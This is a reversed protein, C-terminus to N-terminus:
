KYILNVFEISTFYRAKSKVIHAECLAMLATKCEGDPLKAIHQLALKDPDMTVDDGHTPSTTAVDTANPFSLQNLEQLMAQCEPDLSLGPTDNSKGIDDLLADLQQDLIRSHQSLLEEYKAVEDRNKSDKEQQWVALNKAYVRFRENEELPIKGDLAFSDKYKNMQIEVAKHTQLKLHEFRNLADQVQTEAVEAEQITDWLTKVQTADVSGSKCVDHATVQPGRAKVWAVLDMKQQNRDMDKSLYDELSGKCSELKDMELQLSSTSRGLPVTSMTALNRLGVNRPEGDQTGFGEQGLQQEPTSMVAQTQM